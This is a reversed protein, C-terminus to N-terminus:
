RRIELQDWICDLMHNVTDDNFDISFPSCFGQYDGWADAIARFNHANCYVNRKKLIDTIGMFPQKIQRLILRYEYNILWEDDLCPYDQLQEIIENIDKRTKGSIESDDYAIAFSNYGGYLAYVGKRNSFKRRLFVYNSYEATGGSYDSGGTYEIETLDAELTGMYVTKM